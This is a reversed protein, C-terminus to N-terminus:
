VRQLRGRLVGDPVRAHADRMADLADQRSKGTYARFYATVDDPAGSAAGARACALPVDSAALASRDIGGDGVRAQLEDRGRGCRPVVKTRRPHRPVAQRDGRQADRHRGAVRDHGLIGAIARGPHPGGTAGAAGFRTLPLVVGAERAVPTCASRTRRSPPSHMPACFATQSAWSSSLASTRACIRAARYTAPREGDGTPRSPPHTATDADLPRRRLRWTRVKVLWRYDQGDSGNLVIRKPRRISGLVLVTADVAEITAHVEPQPCRTGEYQGPVEIADHGSSGRYAALYPSLEALTLKGVPVALARQAKIKEIAQKGAKSAADAVTAPSTARM